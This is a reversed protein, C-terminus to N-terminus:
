LFSHYFPPAPLDTDRGYVACQKFVCPSERWAYRVAAVTVHGCQSTNLTVSAVNHSIMPAPKWNGTNQNCHAASCCVEFNSVNANVMIPVRGQDYEINLSHGTLRYDSPFPGQFELGSQHYAVGLASLALRSAVDHKFRPHISGYPSSFDPLDLAVSMFTNPMKANPVKGYGATQAWRLSPIPIVKEQGPRYPALQVFGFPFEASTTHLSASSFRQRWDNIMAPFQCRYLDYAGANSEGQYWIAGYITNRTLPSMMANWLDSNQIARKGNHPCKSLALTSSWWEIKTGGWNSEILGIPYKFQSSLQKGFLWCVASFKGLNARAPISWHLAPTVNFDDLEANSQAHTAKFLRVNRYSSAEAYEASANVVGSMTFEMNSQGSCIWVDGFMVDHLTITGESSKAALTFPGYNDGTVVVKSIWTIVGKANQTVIDEGVKHGNLFLQVTDGLHSSTGWVIAGGAGQQLVMHNNYYSAFKFTSSGLGVVNCFTVCCLLWHIGTM